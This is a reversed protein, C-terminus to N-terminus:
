PFEKPATAMPCWHTPEFIGDLKEQTCCNKYHWWGVVSDREMSASTPLDCGDDWFGNRVLWVGAQWRALLIETGDRPATSIDLWSLTGAESKELISAQEGLRRTLSRIVSAIGQFNQATSQETAYRGMFDLFVLADDASSCPRYTYGSM